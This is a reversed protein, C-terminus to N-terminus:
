LIKKRGPAFGIVRNRKATSIIPQGIPNKMEWKPCRYRDIDEQSTPYRGCNFYRWFFSGYATCGETSGDLLPCGLLRCCIECHGCNEGDSWTDRPRVISLDPGPAPPASIPFSLVLDGRLAMFALRYTYRILRLSLPLHRWFCLSRFLCYSFYPALLYFGVGTLMSSGVCGLFIIRLVAWRVQGSRKSEPFRIRRRYGM